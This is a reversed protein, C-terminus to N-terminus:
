TNLVRGEEEKRWSCGFVMSVWWSRWSDVDDMSKRWSEELIWSKSWSKKELKWYKNSKQCFEELIPKKFEKDGLVVFCM